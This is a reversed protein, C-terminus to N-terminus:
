LQSALDADIIDITESCREFPQKWGDHCGLHRFWDSGTPVFAGSLPRIGAM